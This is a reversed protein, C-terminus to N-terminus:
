DMLPIRDPYADREALRTDENRIVLEAAGIAKGLRNADLVVMKSLARYYIRQEAMASRGIRLTDEALILSDEARDLLIALKWGAAGVSGALLVLVVLLLCNRVRTIM